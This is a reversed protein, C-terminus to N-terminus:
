SSFDNITIGRDAVYKKTRKMARSHLEQCNTESWTSRPYREILITALLRYTMRKGNLISEENPTLPELGNYLAFVIRQKETLNALIDQWLNALNEKHEAEILDSDPSKAYPDELIDFLSLQDDESSSVVINDLSGISALQELDDIDKVTICGNRINKNIHGNSNLWEVFQAKTPTEIESQCRIWLHPLRRILTAKDDDKISIFNDIRRTEDIIAQRIFYYSYTRFKGKDPEWRGLSDLIGVYGAQMLDEDVKHWEPLFRTSFSSVVNYILRTSYVCLLEKADEDGAQAYRALTDYDELTLNPHHLQKSFKNNHKRTKTPMASYGAVLLQSQLGNIFDNRPTISM